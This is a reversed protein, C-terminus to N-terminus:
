GQQWGEILTEITVETIVNLDDDLFEFLRGDPAHCGYFILAGDAGGREMHPLEEPGSSRHYEGARRMRAVTTGDKHLDELHQEGELVLIATHALHRHRQCHGGNGAFRLVFDVTGNERDWGLVSYDYHLKYSLGPEPRVERWELHSTDFRYDAM